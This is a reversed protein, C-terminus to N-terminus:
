IGPREATICVATFRLGDAAYCMSNQPQAVYELEFYVYVNGEERVPM